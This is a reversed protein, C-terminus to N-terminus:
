CGTRGEAFARADDLLDMYFCAACAQDEPTPDFRVQAKSWRELVEDDTMESLWESIREGPLTGDMQGLSEGLDLRLTAAQLRRQYKEAATVAVGRAIAAREDAHGTSIEYRAPIEPGSNDIILRPVAQTRVWEALDALEKMLVPWRTTGPRNIGITPFLSVVNREGMPTEALIDGAEVPEEPRVPLDSFRRPYQDEPIMAAIRVATIAPMRHKFHNTYETLLALPHAEPDNVRHYPQLADIRRVIESGSSLVNPVQRARGKAWDDFSSFTARAPMEIKKAANTDLTGGNLYEVEAFLTHEIAGRLTVLVDAVLLPVKRPVPAVHEVVTRSVAGALVEKLVVIDDGEAQYTFLLKGIHEILEDAHALTAVVGLLRDPVWDLRSVM